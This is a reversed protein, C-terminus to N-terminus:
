ALYAGKEMLRLGCGVEWSVHTGGLQDEWVHDERFIRM